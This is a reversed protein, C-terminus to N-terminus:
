ELDGVAARAATTPAADAGEVVGYAAVLDGNLRTLNEAQRAGASPPEGAGSELAAARADLSDGAAWAGQGLRERAGKLQTRLARVRELAVSDGRMAAVLRTALAFQQALVGPALRVRPDMRVALPQTLTDGGASLRVTYSGPLVWPGRPERPTDGRIASIPYERRLAPPPPGPPEAPPLPTDTNENRRARVAGAPRYLFARRAAGAAAVQRLPTIDDLVWFSRGHTAVVLDSDHVVLDRVSSAPLDLRLSQWHDGDDFSVYVSRETGAYLLGRRGPDARVANVGADAPLGEVIEGWRKGGDKTRYIHPHLDDLRFRNVAAYVELTDFHSAELLSVKSWPTLASPTVNTWRRGGDHTVHIL